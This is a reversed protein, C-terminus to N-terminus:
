RVSFKLTSWTQPARDCGGGSIAQFGIAYQLGNAITNGQVTTNKCSELTMGRQGTTENLRLVNGRVISDKLLRATVGTSMLNIGFNDIININTHWRPNAADPLPGHNGVTADCGDFTCGRITIRDCPTGDWPGFEPFGAETSYDVNIAERRMPTASLPTFPGFYCNDVLVDQCANLEMVHTNGAYATFQVGVFSMRRSHGLNMSSAALGLAIRPRADIIGGVFHINETNDYGGAPATGGQPGNTFLGGEQWRSSTNQNEIIADPAFILKTNSWLRLTKTICYIGTPVYIVGGENLAEQWAATDDASGNGKAGYDKVSTGERLKDCLKRPETGVKVISDCSVGAIQDIADQILKWYYEVKELISFLEDMLEEPTKDSTIPVKLCRRLEEVLQQIEMTLRDLATEHSLAPFRGQEPYDTEQTYPVLRKIALHLGSALPKKLVVTGNSYTPNLPDSDPNVTGEVEYDIGYTLWTEGDASDGTGTIAEIHERLLFPFPVTFRTSVGDGTYLIRCEQIHLTM